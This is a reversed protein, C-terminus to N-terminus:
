RLIAIAVFMSVWLGVVGLALDVVKLGDPQKSVRAHVVFATCVVTGAITMLMWFVFTWFPGTPLIEHLLLLV